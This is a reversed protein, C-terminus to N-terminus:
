SEDSHRFGSRSFQLRGATSFGKAGGERILRDLEPEFKRYRDIWATDGMAAALRASMTLVEDLHLIRGAVQSAARAREDERTSRADNEHDLWADLVAFGVTIAVAAVTLRLPFRPDKDSVVAQARRCRM